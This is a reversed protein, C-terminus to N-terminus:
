YLLPYLTKKLARQYNYSHGKCYGLTAMIEEVSLLRGQDRSMNFLTVFKELTKIRIKGTM